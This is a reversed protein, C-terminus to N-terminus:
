NKYQLLGSLVFEASVIPVMNNKAHACAKADDECSVIVTNGSTTLRKPMADLYKGGSCTVIEKMDRPPPQVHATAHINWGRLVGGHAAAKALTELLSFKFLSRPRRIKCSFHRTAQLCSASTGYCNVVMMMM